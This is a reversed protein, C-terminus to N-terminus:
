SRKRKEGPSKTAQEVRAVVAALPEFMAPRAKVLPHDAPFLDGKRLRIIVGTDPHTTSCTASAVAVPESM